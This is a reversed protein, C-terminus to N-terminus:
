ACTDLKRECDTVNICPIDLYNCCYICLHIAMRILVEPKHSPRHMQCLHTTNVLKRVIEKGTM